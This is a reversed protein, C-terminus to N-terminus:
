TCINKVIVMLACSLVGQSTFPSNSLQSPPMYLTKGPSNDEEAKKDERLVEVASRKSNEWIARPLKCCGHLATLNPQL